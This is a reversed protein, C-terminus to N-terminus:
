GDPAHIAVNFHGGDALLAKVYTLRTQPELRIKDSVRKYANSLSPKGEVTQLPLYIFRCSGDPFCVQPTASFRLYSYINLMRSFRLKVLYKNDSYNFHESTSVPVQM